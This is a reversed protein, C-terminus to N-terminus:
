KNEAASDYLPKKIVHVLLLFILLGIAKPGGKLYSLHARRRIFLFM